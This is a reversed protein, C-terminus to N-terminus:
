AAQDIEVDEVEALYGDKRLTDVIFQYKGGPTPSWTGTLFRRLSGPPINRSVAYRDLRILILNQRTALFDIRKTNSM